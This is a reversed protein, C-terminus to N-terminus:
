PVRKILFYLKGADLAPTLAYKFARGLRPWFGKVPPPFLLDHLYAQSDSTAKHFDETAGSLNVGIPTYAKIMGDADITVAKLDDLVDAVKPSATEIITALGNMGRELAAAANTVRPSADAVLKDATLVTHTLSPILGGPQGNLSVDTHRLTTEGQLLVGRGAALTSNLQRMGDQAGTSLGVVERRVDAVLGTVEAETTRLDRVAGKAEVLVQNGSEAIGDLRDLKDTAKDMFTNLKANTAGVMNSAARWSWLAWILMLGVLLLLGDKIWERYTIARRKERSLSDEAMPTAAVMSRTSQDENSDPQTSDGM